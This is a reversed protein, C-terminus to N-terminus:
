AFAVAFRGSKDKQAQWFYAMGDLNLFGM